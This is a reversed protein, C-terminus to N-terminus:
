GIEQLIRSVKTKIRQLANDISKPERGLRKAIQQYSYGERFLVFVQKEMKSLSRDLREELQEINERDIVFQEPNGDGDPRLLDLLSEGEQGDEQYAPTDLSIYNNLPQNKKRNQAEIAKYIQRSICLSAFSAFSSEKGEDFERIARFLGIMGEQILDDCDGGILYLTKAKGRVLNKYKEMLFDVAGGNGEQVLRLLEEDTHQEYEEQRM